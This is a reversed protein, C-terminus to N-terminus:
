SVETTVMYNIVIAKAFVSPELMPNSAKTMLYISFKPDYDVEKDGLIVFTRGEIAAPILSVFYEQKRHTRKVFKQV